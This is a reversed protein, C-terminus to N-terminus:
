PQATLLATGDDAVLEIADIQSAPLSSAAPVTITRGPVATWTAVQETSSDEGVVVLAYTTPGYGSAPGASGASPSGDDAYTCTLEIRTGWAVQELSVSATIASPAEPQMAVVQVNPPRSGILSVPSAPLVLALVVAAAAAVLGGLVFRRRRIVARRRASGLLGALVSEPVPTVVSEPVSATVPDSAALRDVLGPPVLDLLAPLAGVEEVAARCGACGRLHAEFAAREPEDVAGLVYAEADPRWPDNM